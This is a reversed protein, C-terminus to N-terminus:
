RSWNQVYPFVEKCLADRNGETIYFLRAKPCRRVSDLFPVDTRSKVAAIVHTDGDLAAFVADTFAHAEAEMFGLEDMVIVGGPRASRIYQAGLTDFVNLRINHIKRNCTGILNEDTHVRQETPQGAPHIYIPHFGDADNDLRKTIYGYIPLDMQLLLRRILTSKGAGVDGCILIHPKENM